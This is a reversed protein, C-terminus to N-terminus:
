QRFYFQEAPLQGYTFPEQQKDTQTLVEDHVLRFIQNVEIGPTQIRTALATAFPSNEGTGDSATRGHKTAFAVLTGSEPEIRALGRGINAEGTRKMDAAFPNDRCADLIVLRLKGAGGVSNLVQDLAVSEKPVDADQEFKADVPVIYNSGEVEIGHGAYYVVAWDANAATETFAKLKGSIAERSGDLLTDVQEFGVKRLADALLMADREPNALKEIAAYKSNGIVLAVRGGSRNRAASGDKGALKAENREVGASAVGHSPFQTLVAAYDDRAKSFNRMLEHAKARQLLSFTHKPNIRLAQDLDALAREHQGREVFLRGRNNLAPVYNPNIALSANFDALARDGDGLNLRAHGRGFLYGYHHAYAHLSKDYADVAKDYLRMAGYVVGLSGYGQGSHPNLQVATNAEKLARAQDGQSSYVLARYAYPEAASPNIEAAANLDGLAKGLEGTLRYASSRGILSNMHRPHIDLAKDFDAIAMRSQGMRNRANGRWAWAGVHKPDAKVARDLEVVAAQFKGEGLLERAARIFPQAPSRGEAQGREAPAAASRQKQEAGGRGRDAKGQDAKAGSMCPRSNCFAGCRGKQAAPGGRDTCAAVCREVSVPCTQALAPASPELRAFAAVALALRAIVKFM